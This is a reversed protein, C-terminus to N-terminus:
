CGPQDPDTVNKVITWDQSASADNTLAWVMVVIWGIVTWGFLLDVFFIARSNRKEKAAAIISPLFYLGLLAILSM